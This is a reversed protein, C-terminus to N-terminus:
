LKKELLCFSVRRRRNENAESSPFFHMFPCTASRATEPMKNSKPNNGQFTVSRIVDFLGKTQYKLWLQM